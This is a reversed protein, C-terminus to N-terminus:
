QRPPVINAHGIEEPQRPSPRLAHDAVRAQDNVILSTFGGLHSHAPVTVITERARGLSVPLTPSKKRMAPM